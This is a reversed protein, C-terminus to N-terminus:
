RRLALRELLGARMPQYQDGAGSVEVPVPAAVVAIEHRTTFRQAHGALAVLRQQAPETAQLGKIMQDRLPGGGSSLSAMACGNGPGPAPQIKVPGVAHKSRAAQGVRGIPAARVAPSEARPPPISGWITTCTRHRPTPRRLNSSRCAWSTTPLRGDRRTRGTLSLSRLEPRVLAGPVASGICTTRRTKLVSM